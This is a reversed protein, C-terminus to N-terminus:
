YDGHLDQETFDGEFSDVEMCIRWEHFLQFQFMLWDLSSSSFCSWRNNSARVVFELHCWFCGCRLLSLCSVLLQYLIWTPCDCYGCSTCGSLIGSSLIVICSNGDSGTLVFNQSRSLTIPPNWVFHCCEQVVSGLLTMRWRLRSLGAHSVGDCWLEGCCLESGLTLSVCEM